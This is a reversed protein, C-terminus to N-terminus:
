DHNKSNKAEKIAVVLCLSIIVSLLGFMLAFSALDNM